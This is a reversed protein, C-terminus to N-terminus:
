GLKPELRQHLDLQRRHLHTLTQDTEDVPDHRPQRMHPLPLVRPETHAPGSRAPPGSSDAASTTEAPPSRRATRTSAATGQRNATPARTPPAASRQAPRDRAQHPPTPARRCPTGSAPSANAPPSADTSPSDRSSRSSDQAVLASLSTRTLYTFRLRPPAAHSILTQGRSTARRLSAEFWRTSRRSSATRPSRCPFPTRLLADPLSQSPSRSSKATSTDFDM